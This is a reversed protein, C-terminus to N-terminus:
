AHHFATMEEDDKALLFNNNLEDRNLVEKAWELLKDLVEAKGGQVAMNWATRRHINQDLLLGKLEEPTLQENAWMWIRELIQLNGSFSAHHFATMEEDDKAMLLKNSLEERNLVEKAWEWLKDVVDAKGRQVAKNWATRKKYDQALMIKHLEGQSLQENTWKCIRELKQVNETFHLVTKERENGFLLLKNSIEDRNLVEKAWELLKDLVEPKKLGVAVYWATKGSYDQALFLEKLEEPTLQENAWKWIRELIEVNDTFTARHFATLDDYDKALLLENKLQDRNLVEKAWEWMKDLVEAIGREVAM